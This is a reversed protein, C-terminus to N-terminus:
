EAADLLKLPQHELADLEQNIIRECFESVKRLPVHQHIRDLTRLKVKLVLQAKPESDPRRGM